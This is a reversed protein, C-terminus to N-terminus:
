PALVIYSLKHYNMLYINGGEVPYLGRELFLVATGKGAATCLKVEVFEFKLMGLVGFEKDYIYINGNLLIEEISMNLASLNKHIIM